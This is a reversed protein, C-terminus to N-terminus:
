WRLDLSRRARDVQGPGTSRAPRPATDDPSRGPADPRDALRELLRQFDPRQRLEAWHATRALQGSDSWGLALARELLGVAEAAYRDRELSGAALPMCHALVGAAGYLEGADDKM